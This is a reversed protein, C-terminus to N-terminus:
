KNGTILLGRSLKINLYKADSDARRQPKWYGREIREKLSHQPYPHKHHKPHVGNTSRTYPRPYGRECDECEHRTEPSKAGKRRM